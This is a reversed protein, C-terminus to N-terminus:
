FSNDFTVFATTAVTFVEMHKKVHWKQKKQKKKHQSLFPKNFKNKKGHISVMTLANEMGALATHPLCLKGMQTPYKTKMTNKFVPQSILHKLHKKMGKVMMQQERDQEEDKGKGPPCVSTVLSSKNSWKKKIM